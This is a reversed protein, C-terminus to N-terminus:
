DVPGYDLHLRMVNWRGNYITLQGSDMARGWLRGIIQHLAGMIIRCSHRSAVFLNQRIIIGHIREFDNLLDFFQGRVFLRLDCLEDCFVAARHCTLKCDGPRPKHGPNYWCADLGYGIAGMIDATWSDWSDM